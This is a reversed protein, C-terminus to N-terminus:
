DTVPVNHKLICLINYLVMVVEFEAKEQILMEEVESLNKLSGSVEVCQKALTGSYIPKLNQLLNSVESFLGRGRYLLKFLFIIFTM